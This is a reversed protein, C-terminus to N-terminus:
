ERPLRTSKTRRRRPRFASSDLAPVSSNAPLQEIARDEIAQVVARPEVSSTSLAGSVCAIMRRSYRIVYIVIWCSIKGLGFVQSITIKLSKLIVVKFCVRIIMWSVKISCCSIIVVFGFLTSFGVALVVLILPHPLKEYVWLLASTSSYGYFPLPLSESETSSNLSWIWQLVNWFAPELCVRLLWEIVNM